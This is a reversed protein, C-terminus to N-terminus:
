RASLVERVLRANERSAGRHARVVERGKVGLRAAAEPDELLALAEAMPDDSVRIGDGELLAEVVAAFHEYHPGIVTPRGLAVAEIPDSGGKTGFSRGILVVDALAYAKRLEGLTDLLFRSSGGPGAGSPSSRRIFTSDLAAVEDFREPRRPAVLLQVTDPCRELLFAEEGPGTSGAVLLPRSPDIGMERALTEAGEIRDALSATDWKMNDTVRIRDPPVGLEQFRKGYVATQVAAVEVSAFMPRVLRRILRYNRFSGESLRGNVVVLPIGRSEAAACLNPWLELEMLVLVDPLVGDLFRSVSASFDLPFRVVELRDGYLGRARDFGTDTTASVIVRLEPGEGSLLEDVLTRTANVEGVSVGHILVTRPLEGASSVPPAEWTEIRGFRGPWDTRWKGTRILRWALLPSAVLLSL